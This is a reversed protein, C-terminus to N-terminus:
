LQERGKFLLVLFSDTSGFKLRQRSRNLQNSKLFLDNNHGLDKELIQWCRTLM